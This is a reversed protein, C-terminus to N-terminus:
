ELFVSDWVKLYEGHNRIEFILNCSDDCIQYGNEKFVMLDGVSLESFYEEQSAETNYLMVVCKKDSTDSEVYESSEQNSSEVMEILECEMMENGNAVFFEIDEYTIQYQLAGVIVSAMSDNVANSFDGNTLEFTVRPGEYEFQNFFCDIEKAENYVERSAELFENTWADEIDFRIRGNLINPSYINLSSSDINSPDIDNVFIQCINNSDKLVIGTSFVYIENCIENSSLDDYCVLYEDGMKYTAEYQSIQMKSVCVNKNEEFTQFEDSWEECADGNSPFVINMQEKEFVFGRGSDTWYVENYFTPESSYDYAMYGLISGSILVILAGVALKVPFSKKSSAVTNLATSSETSTSVNESQVETNQSPVDKSNYIHYGHDDSYWHNGEHDLYWNTGDAGTELWEGQPLEEWTAVWSSM